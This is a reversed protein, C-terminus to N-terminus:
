LVHFVFYDEYSRTKAECNLDLNGRCETCIFYEIDNIECHRTEALLAILFEFLDFYEYYLM